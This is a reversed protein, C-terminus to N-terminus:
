GKLGKGVCTAVSLLLLAGALPLQFREALRQRQEKHETVSGVSRARQLLLELGNGERGLTVAEPDIAVMVTRSAHSKVVAGNQDKVYGGVPLPMLGGSETGAIAALVTVGTEQLIQLASAINGAHDEGDSVVILVRGGNKTVRFSRQAEQFVTALASGGYPLSEPALDNVIQRAISYDTTLPCVTFATGSFAIIGIRDGSLTDLLKNIASKAAALRTPEIDEARM